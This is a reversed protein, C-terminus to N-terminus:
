IKQPIKVYYLFRTFYFNIVTEESCKWQWEIVRDNVYCDMFKEGLLKAHWSANHGTQPVQLLYFSDNVVNTLWETDSVEGDELICDTFSARILAALILDEVYKYKNM